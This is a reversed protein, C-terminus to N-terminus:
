GPRDSGMQQMMTRWQQLAVDGDLIPEYTMASFPLLPWELMMQNLEAEDAVNAIAGGGGGGAFFYFTEMKARHRDRWAAFGDMLAPVHEPPLPFQPRATVLVRM